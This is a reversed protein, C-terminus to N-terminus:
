AARRRADSGGPAAAPRCKPRLGAAGAPNCIGVVGASAAALAQELDAILDDRGRDRGVAPHRGPRRRGGPAGRRDAPSPDDVGSAPDPQAHRRRQGPAVVARGVRRRRVGAEFGGRVGFTFVSGAGARCTARPSRTTVPEVPLGAYSVWAVAPHGDLFEAVARANAVHREMRLPLTEIGTLIHFANTPSLAPGLDRLAVARAKM